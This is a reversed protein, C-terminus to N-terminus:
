TVMHPLAHEDYDKRQLIDKLTAVADWIDVYRIYLPALGFRMIEPERYDGIVGRGILAQMVAYAHPHRLCIQSGRQAHARPTVLELGLGACEQAVLAIFLDGLALSKKRISQMDTRAFVELGCDVLALSVICQTGCLARRIGVDPRYEPSMQFPEAHSWWGSLPQRFYRLHESLVWIFAPAGPGGNLYKYTCGVAMDAGDNRLDLPVAGASHALDWLMLAGHQHALASVEAMPHMYGTRYNVHTLMVVATDADIVQALESSDDVLVIEHGQALWQTLGQAMYIDSPFNARETVIKKRRSDKEAQMQLACALAKFLNISTTDTVVVEGPRAGLLDLLQMGLKHPLDFWHAKNWSQILDRGWQQDVVQQVRLSASKPKAGLSNGDLYIVDDPLDFADRLAGIWDTADMQLCDERSHM